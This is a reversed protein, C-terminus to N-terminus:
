YAVYLACLVLADVWSLSQKVLIVIFYLLPPVLGVIEVAHERELQIAPLLPAAHQAGLAKRRGATAFVVYIMPWGLGLLLRIAGLSGGHVPFRTAKTERALSSLGARSAWCTM